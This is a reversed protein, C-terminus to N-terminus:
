LTALELRAPPASFSGSVIFIRTAKKKPVCLLVCLVTPLGELGFAKSQYIRCASRSLWCGNM